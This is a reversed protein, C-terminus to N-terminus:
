LLKNLDQPNKSNNWFLHLDVVKNILDITYFLKTQKSIVISYIKNSNDYIGILPNESLRNLNEFVLDQFKQVEKHNWKRFIFDIEDYYSIQSNPQWIIQYTM